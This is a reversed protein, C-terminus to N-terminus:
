VEHWNFDCTLQIPERASTGPHRSWVLVLIAGVPASLIRGRLDQRVLLARQAFGLVGGATLTTIVIKQSKQWNEAFFFGGQWRRKFFSRQLTRFGTVNKANV